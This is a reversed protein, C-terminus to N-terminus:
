KASVGNLQNGVADNRSFNVRAYGPLRCPLPRTAVFFSIGFAWREIRQTAADGHRRLYLPASYCCPRLPNPSVRLAFVLAPGRARRLALGSAARLTLISLPPTGGAVSVSASKPLRIIQNLGLVRRRSPCMGMRGGRGM